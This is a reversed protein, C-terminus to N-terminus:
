QFFIYIEKETSSYSCILPRNSEDFFLSNYLGVDGTSAVDETDWSTGNLHAFKLNNLTYGSHSEMEYYAIAPVGSSDFALSCYEGCLSAEDVVHIDWSSADTEQAYKLCHTHSDGQGDTYQTAYYAVALHGNNDYGASIHGVECGEEVWGTTWVGNQRRAVRLGKTYDTLEAYYFVAPEDNGDTVIDCHDGVNNQYGVNTDTYINGEVQEEIGPDNLDYRDKKVYYIDPYAFNMADCGEYRFQYCIHIDGQSDIAVSMDAGALGDQFVPNRDEDVEGIGGLYEQWQDNEKISFMADSQLEQGCERITGGQYVAVPSEDPTVAFGLSSCNDVADLIEEDESGSLSAADWVIYNISYTVDDESEEPISSEFYAIHIGSGSNFAAKVNPSLLGRADIQKVSVFDWQTSSGSTLGGDSEGGEGYDGGNNCGCFSFTIFVFVSFLIFVYKSNKPYGRIFM